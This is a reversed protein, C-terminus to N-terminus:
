KTLAGTPVYGDIGNAQIHTWEGKTDCIVTVKTGDNLVVGTANGGAPEILFHSRKGGECCRAVYSRNSSIFCAQAHVKEKGTTV